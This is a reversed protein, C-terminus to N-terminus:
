ARLNPSRAGPAASVVHKGPAAYRGLSSYPALAPASVPAPAPVYAPVPAPAPAPAPAYAELVTEVEQKKMGASQLIERVDAAPMLRLNELTIVGQDALSRAFAACAKKLGVKLKVMESVLEQLEEEVDDGAAAAGGGAAAPTQSHPRVSM